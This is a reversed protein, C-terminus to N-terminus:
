LTETADTVKFKVIKSNKLGIALAGSKVALAEEGFVERRWGKLLPSDGQDNIVLKELDDSSGILKTAVGHEAAQIKLLMKLIDLTASASPPLPKKKEVRPWTAPDSELAKQVKSLLKEGLNKRELDGPINRIKKLAKMTTPLQGAMDALTEDKLVWGKPINKKRAKKERWAALEQLVALNKPKPSRIKVKKWADRPDIEYTAPDSLIGEEEFVWNTRGQEDLREILHKYIDVLHTVDGLAYDLQRDSLPRVSWNTYQVSKDLQAGTINRVLSEYGVSDGYGCVMAAIQTDFLPKPVRGTLNHFIELDGRAAHFIKLVNENDFLDYLPSLDLGEVLPDIAFADKDPGSIQVLCLKSYYTKERLFETDVTVFECSSLAAIRTNLEDQTTVLM